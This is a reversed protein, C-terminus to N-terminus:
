GTAMGAQFLTSFDFAINDGNTNENEQKPLGGYAIALIGPLMKHNVMILIAIPAIAGILEVYLAGESTRLLFKRFAPKVEAIHIIAETIKPARESFIQADVPNIFVMGVAMMGWLDNIQQRVVVQWGKRAKGSNEITPIHETPNLSQNAKPRGRKPKFPTEPISQFLNFVQPSNQETQLETSNTQEPM